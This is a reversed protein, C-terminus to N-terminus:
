FSKKKEQGVRALSRDGGVFVIAKVAFFAVSHGSGAGSTLYRALSNVESM